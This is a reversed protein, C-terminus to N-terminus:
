LSIAKNFNYNNEGLGCIEILPKLDAPIFKDFIEIGNPKSNQADCFDSNIQQIYGQYYSIFSLLVCVALGSMWVINSLM